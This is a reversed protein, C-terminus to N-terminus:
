LSDPQHHNVMEFEESVEDGCGLEMEFWRRYELLIDATRKWVSEDTV